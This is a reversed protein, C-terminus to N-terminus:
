GHFSVTSGNTFRRDGMNTTRLAFAASTTIGIALADRTLSAIGMM